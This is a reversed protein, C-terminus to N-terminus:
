LDQVEFGQLGERIATGANDFALFLYLNQIHVRENHVENTLLM